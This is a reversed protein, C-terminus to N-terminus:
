QIILKETRQIKDGIVKVFYIGSSYKSLDIKTEITGNSPIANITEIVKGQEDVVLVKADGNVGSVKVTTQNTAPNPYLSLSAGSEVDDLGVLTARIMTDFTTACGNFKSTLQVRYNGEQSYQHSPSINEVIPNTQSNYMLIESGDGFDWFYEILATTDQVPFYTDNYFQVINSQGSQKYFRAKPKSNYAKVKIYSVYAPISLGTPVQTTLRVFYNEGNTTLTSQKVLFSNKAPVSGNVASIALPTGNAITSLQSLPLDNPNAFWEYKAFGPPAILKAITDVKYCSNVQIASAGVKGVFYGYSWHGTPSCGAVLVKMRIRKSRFNALDYSIQKWNQWIGDSSGVTFESWGDPKPLQGKVDYYTSPDLRAIENDNEDLEFIELQFFPNQYGTHGPAELVMSYNFTVLSNKDSVLMDYSLMNTNAGYKQVNIKVSRNFGFYTPIKILKTAGVNYDYETYNKNIVFCTDSQWTCEAPNTFLNWGSYKIVTADSNNKTQYGKWYTFDSMSFDFNTGDGIQSFSQNFSGFIMLVTIIFTCFSTTLKKM